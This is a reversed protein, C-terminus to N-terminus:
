DVLATALSTEIVEQYDLPQDPDFHYAAADTVQVLTLGDPQLGSGHVVLGVVATDTTFGAWAENHYLVRANVPRGDVSWTLSPWSAWAESESEWGVRQILVRAADSALGQEFTEERGLMLESFRQRSFSGVFAWEEGPNRDASRGHGLWAGWSPRGARGEFFDLWRPGGWTSDLGYLPFDLPPFRHSM